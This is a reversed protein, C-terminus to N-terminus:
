EWEITAPPKSSIDYTVRNIGKVENIIRTSISQLVDGPLRVWDATMGDLSEVCRVAIVNEYTRNDGMVGVSKVPLLVAFAQWVKDYFGHKKIEELVIADANRLVSLREETVDGLVRIALGPGPFPHRNIIEDPLALERGIERVEDKFLEKFPEIVRGEEILKLVGEVRNHHTKITDSPGKVSVSEIVDPYLTGQALYDFDKANENFVDLFIKGIIKRKEEPNEIDKLGDLFTKSANVRIFNMNFSTQFVEEVRDAENKRLLGNDVFICTLKDGLAKHLLVALVSSDVGGSLGLVVKKDGVTKRIDGITEEIFSSMVWSAELGSIKFVFNYLMESGRYTHVVEPHFQLCYINEEENSIAAIADKTNAAIKFGEPLKIVKDGHSMWVVQKNDLGAFLPSDGVAEMESYGYEKVDGQEIRGGKLHSILQMGYCIGLIPLKYDFIKDSIKPAGEAYVNSPGGSLIIGKVDSTIADDLNANYPHIECFVRFSRIRRAILQTYQSGFDIIIIKDM